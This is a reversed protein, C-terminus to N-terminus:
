RLLMEGLGIRSLLSLMRAGTNGGHGILLPVWYSVQVEQKLLKDFREVVTAAVVLGLFFIVLWGSRSRVLDFANGRRYDSDDVEEASSAM